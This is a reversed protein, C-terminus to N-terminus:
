KSEQAVKIETEDQSEFKLEAKKFEYFKYTLDHLRKAADKEDILGLQRASLINLRHMEYEPNSM